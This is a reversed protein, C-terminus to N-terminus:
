FYDRRRSDDSIFSPNWQAPYICSHRSGPLGSFPYLGNRELDANRLAPSYYIDTMQLLNKTSGNEQMEITERGWEMSVRSSKPFEAYPSMQLDGSKFIIKNIDNKDKRCCAVILAIIIILLLGGAAPSVVKAILGYFNNCNFGGFGFTCEVCTENVLAFGDGCDRCTTDEPNKKFFGELCQCFLTGNTDNCVSSQTDCKNYKSLCLSEGQYTLQHRLKLTCRSHPKSCNRLFTQIRSYVESSTVNASMSFMNRASINWGGTDDLTSRRYGHLVSLAAELLQLIEKHLEHLGASRLHSSSNVSFTGLFTKAQTCSRGDELDYGLACKCTFSGRTNVCKSDKPCPNTVCEDVDETCNAGTWAPLCECKHGQVCRGGNACTKPGCIHDPTTTSKVPVQTTTAEKQTSSRETHKGTTVVATSRTPASTSYSATTHRGHATTNGPTATSTELHLTSVDTSIDEPQSSSPTLSPTVTQSTPRHQETTATTLVQTTEMPSLTVHPTHPKATTSPQLQHTTFPTSTSTSTSTSALTTTIVTTPVTSALTSAVRTDEETHQPRQTVPGAATTLVETAEPTHHTQSVFPQQSSLSDDVTTLSPLATTLGLITTEDKHTQPGDSKKDVVTSVSRAPTETTMTEIDQHSMNTRSDETSMFPTVSPASASRDTYSTESTSSDAITDTETESSNVVTAPQTSNHSINDTTMETVNPQGTQSQTGQSVHPVEPESVTVQTANTTPQDESTARTHDAETSLAGETYDGGQTTGTKVESTDTQPAAESSISEETYPTTSNSTVSLLTREGARNITTSIYTSDTHSISETTDMDTIDKETLVTVTLDRVTRAETAPQDKTALDIYADTINAVTPPAGWETATTNSLETSSSLLETSVEPGSHSTWSEMDTSFTNQDTATRAERETFGPHTESLKATSFHEFGASTFEVTSATLTRLLGTTDESDTTGSFTFYTGETVSSDTNPAFSGAITVKLLSLVLVSLVRAPRRVACAEM